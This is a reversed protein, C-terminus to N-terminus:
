AGGLILLEGSGQLELTGAVVLEPPALLTHDDPVTVTQEAPVTRPLLPFLRMAEGDPLPLTRYPM